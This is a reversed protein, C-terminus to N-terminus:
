HLEMKIAVNEKALVVVVVVEDDDGDDDDDDYTRQAECGFGTFNRQEREGKQMKSEKERDADRYYNTSYKKKQVVQALALLIFAQFTPVKTTAAARCKCAQVRLSRENLERKQHKNNKNQASLIDIEPYLVSRHPPPPVFPM